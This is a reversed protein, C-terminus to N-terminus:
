NLGTRPTSICTSWIVPRLQAVQAANVSVPGTFEQPINPPLEDPHRQYAVALFTAMQIWQGIPTEPHVDDVFIDAMTLGTVTGAQIADYVAMFVQLWPVLRMAPTGANRNANVYDIIGNWLPVEDNQAARWSADFLEAPDNRWFNGYFTQAGRSAALNHYLLAQGYANSFEIHTQVSARPPTGYLGGHAEIGLFIDYAAGPTELIQRVRDPAAPDNEWRFIASSYPGTQSVVVPTAGAASIVGAWPYKFINDPISHGSVAVRASYPVPTLAPGGLDVSLPGTPSFILGQGDVSYFSM